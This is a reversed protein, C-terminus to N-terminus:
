EPYGGSHEPSVYTHKAAIQEVESSVSREGFLFMGCPVRCSYDWQMSNCIKDASHQQYVSSFVTLVIAHVYLHEIIYCAIVLDAQHMAVRKCVHVTSHVYKNPAVTVAMAELSAIWVLSNSAWHIWMYPLHTCVDPLNKWPHVLYNTWQCHPCSFYRFMQVM